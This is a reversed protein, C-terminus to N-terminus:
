ADVPIRGAPTLMATFISIDTKREVIPSFGSSEFNPEIGTSIHPGNVLEVFRLFVLHRTWIDAGPSIDRITYVSRLSPLTVGEDLARLRETEPYERVMVVRQGVVFNCKMSCRRERGFRIDISSSASQADDEAITTGSVQLRVLM